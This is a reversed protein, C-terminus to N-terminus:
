NERLKRDTKEGNEYGCITPIGANMLMYGENAPGCGECLEDKGLKEKVAAVCAQSLPHSPPIHASPLKNKVQIKFSLLQPNPETNPNHKELIKSNRRNIVDAVLKEITLIIEEQNQGPMTRIDIMSEAYPPVMSEYEGGKLLTGPTITFRLKPFAEHLALPWPHQEIQFLAECLALSANSGKEGTCWEHVGSHVAQGRVSVVLRILGRHGITVRSGIHCYIAGKGGVIKQKLLYELGNPSCAGSEEDAVAAMFIKGKSLDFTGSTKLYHLAYLAAAIGGKNDATGRGIMKGDIINAGHSPSVWDEERGESVTDAHAVFIFLPEGTGISAVANPRDPTDPSAHLSGLNM